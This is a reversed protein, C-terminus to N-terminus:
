LLPSLLRCVQEKLKILLPRQSYRDKTIKTCHQLDDTFIEQMHAAEKESYVIANVEFNLQFSRIDMNATGYSFAKGDVIMGKAHLFGNDYTYCNAGAMVMDGIYSYTAWYVFPHDPKCPIMVNVEVGSYIAVTLANMIAEDPIFYPTQIYISKEAKGILRLYNNKINQLESDPGSSVIQMRCHGPCYDLVPFYQEKEFLNERTAYNWDLVFRVQLAAVASGIIKLHTDRWYGFKPDLGIYEKGINFGGVYGIRGDIIVIKRHNRYNIRLHMRGLFAPFFTVAQIGAQRLKRWYRDPISRCGMGDFLIRVEVGQGAKEVLVDKIRNFLVDNKIIYYQVHIFHEAKKMDEILAEFKANGDTFVELANDDTFVAGSSKLNYYVLDLYDAANHNMFEVDKNKIGHEQQRIAENMQDEIEKNKFMKRKHMDTGAFLYIVFGLIPISYLVLLWAWVSKPERRQFFIIAISLIFNIFVTHNIIWILVEYTDWLLKEM